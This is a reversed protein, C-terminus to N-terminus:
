APPRWRSLERGLLGELERVDASFVDTLRRRTAEAMRPKPLAASNIRNVIAHVRMRRALDLVGSLQANVLAQSASFAIRKLFRSRMKASENTTHRAFDLEVETAVDLFDFLRALEAQPNAILDEFILVLIQGSDFYSQFYKLQDAYRGMSVYITEQELAEEFHIEDILATARHHWYASYARDVPNRLCVILKAEPMREKITPAAAKDYFYVPSYEGKIQGPRAHRFRRMYWDLDRDYNPNLKDKEDGIPLLYRNFYRVEKPESLCIGPHARLVNALWSTGCRAAGIGIFDVAEGM